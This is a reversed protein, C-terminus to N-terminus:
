AARETAVTRESAAARRSTPAVLFLAGVVTV